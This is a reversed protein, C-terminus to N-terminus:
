LGSEKPGLTRAACRGTDSKLIMQLLELGSSAFITWKLGNHM